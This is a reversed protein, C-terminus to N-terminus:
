YITLLVCPLPVLSFYESAALQAVEYGINHAVQKTSFIDLIWHIDDLNITLRRFATSRESKRQGANANTPWSSEEVPERRYRKPWCIPREASPDELLIAYHLASGFSFVLDFPCLLV